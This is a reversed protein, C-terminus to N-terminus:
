GHCGTIRDDCHDQQSCARTHFNLVAIGSSYVSDVPLYHFFRAQTYYIIREISESHEDNVELLM